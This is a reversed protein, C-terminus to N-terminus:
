MATQYGRNNTFASIQTPIDAKKAIEEAGEAFTITGNSITGNRIYVHGKSDSGQKALIYQTITGSTESGTSVVFVRYPGTGIVNLNQVGEVLYFCTPDIADNIHSVQKNILGAALDAIDNKDAATLVYDDGPDGKDGKAGPAGDAGVVRGLNGVMDNYTNNEAYVRITSILEGNNNISVSQLSNGNKGDVAGVDFPENYSDGNENYVTHRLILHNTMADRYASTISEGKIGREGKDGKDGKDGKAGPLGHLSDLWQAETGEYGHEVAIEYASKGDAIGHEVIYAEVIQRIVAPDIAASLDTWDTFASTANNRRRVYIKGLWDFRFQTLNTGNEVPLILCRHGNVATAYIKGAVTANEIPKGTVYEVLHSLVECIVKNQVPHNSTPDLEEDILIGGHEDMLLIERILKGLLSYRDDHIEADLSDDVDVLFTQTAYTKTTDSIVFKCVAVGDESFTSDLTTATATGDGNVQCELLM